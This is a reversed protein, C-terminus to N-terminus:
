GGAARPPDVARHALVAHALAIAASRAATADGTRVTVIFNRGNITVILSQHAAVWGARDGVGTVRESKVPEYQFDDETTVLGVTGLGVTWNCAVTGDPGHELGPRSSPPPLAALAFDTDSLLECPNPGESLYPGAAALAVELREPMAQAKAMALLVGAVVTQEGTREWRACCRLPEIVARLRGAGVVIVQQTLLQHVAGTRPSALRYEIQYNAGDLGLVPTQRTIKEGKIAGPVYAYRVSTLQCREYTTTRARRLDAAMQQNTGYRYLEVRLNGGEDPGAPHYHWTTRLTAVLGDGFHAPMCAGTPLWNDADAGKVWGKGTFAGARHVISKLEAADATSGGGPLSAPSPRTPQPQRHPSTITAVLGVAVVGVVCVAVVALVCIGVVTGASIGARPTPPPGSYTPPPVWGVPPPGQSSRSGTGDPPAPPPEPLNSVM